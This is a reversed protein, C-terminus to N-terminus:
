NIKKDTLRNKIRYNTIAFRAATVYSCLIFPITYLMTIGLTSLLLWGFYSILTTLITIGKKALIKKSLVLAHVYDLQEDVVVLVFGLSTKLAFILFFILGIVALVIAAPKIINLPLAISYGTLKQITGNSIWWAAISPTFCAVATVVYRFLVRVYLLLTNVLLSQSSYYYFLESIPLESDIILAWFWRVSGQIVPVSLVFMSLMIVAAIFTGLLTYTGIQNFIVSKFVGLVLECLLLSVFIAALLIVSVLCAAAWKGRLYNRATTKVKKSNVLSIM